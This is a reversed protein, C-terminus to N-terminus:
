FAGGWAVSPFYRLRHPLRGLRFPRARMICVRGSKRAIQRSRSQARERVPKRVANRYRAAPKATATLSRAPTRISPPRALGSAAPRRLPSSWTCVATSRASVAYFRSQPRLACGAALPWRSAAYPCVPRILEPRNKCAWRTDFVGLELEWLPPLGKQKPPRRFLSLNDFRDLLTQYVLVTYYTDNWASHFDLDTEMELDTVAKELSPQCGLNDDILKQYVYQLDFYECKWDADFSIRHFEFNKLLVEVDNNGWEVFVPDKGCWRLFAPGLDLFGPANGLLERLEEREYPLLRYTRSEIKRSAKPHIYSHFSDLMAGTDQEVKIAAVEILEHFPLREGDKSRYFTTNWELDLFILESM